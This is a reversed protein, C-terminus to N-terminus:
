MPPGIHRVSSTEGTQGWPDPSDFFHVAVLWAHEDIDNQDRRFLQARQNLGSGLAVVNKRVKKM